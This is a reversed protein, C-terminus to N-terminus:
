LCQHHTGLHMFDRFNSQDDGSGTLVDCRVGACYQDNQRVLMVRQFTELQFLQYNRLGFDLTCDNDHVALAVTLIWWILRGGVFWVYRRFIMSM